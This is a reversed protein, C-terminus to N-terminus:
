SLPSTRGAARGPSGAQTLTRWSRGETGASRPHQRNMEPTTSCTLRPGPNLDPRDTTRRALSVVMCTATLAVAGEQADGDQAGAGQRAPDAREGEGNWPAATTCPAM